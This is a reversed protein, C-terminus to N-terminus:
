LPKVGKIRRGKFKYIEAMRASISVCEVLFNVSGEFNDGKLEVLALDKMEKLMKEYREYEDHPNM